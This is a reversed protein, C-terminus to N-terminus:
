IGVSLGSSHCGRLLGLPLTASWGHVSRPLSGCARKPRFGGWWEVRYCLNKSTELANRRKNPRFLLNYNWRLLLSRFAMRAHDCVQISEYILAAELRTGSEQTYRHRALAFFEV